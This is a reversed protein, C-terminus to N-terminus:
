SLGPVPFAESFARVEDGIGARRAADNPSRLIEVMWGAIRAMDGEGMGRTTCAPSGIRIGSPRLPPRPDDPVVQKNTAIGVEDLAREAERGDLGFSTTTDIVIMHNDTGGTVLTVGAEVLGTALAKANRLVQHAHDRFAPEAAKRFTVAAAAITNM